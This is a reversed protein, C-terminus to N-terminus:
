MSVRPEKHGVVAFIRYQPGEHALQFEGPYERLLPEFCDPESPLWYNYDKVTVIVWDVHYKRIGEMLMQPNSIPPFWVVRHGSYHYVLDLKRAMVVESPSTHSHIWRAAGIDGYFSTKSMDFHLNDRGISLQGVLGAGLLIGVILTMVVQAASLSRGAVSLRQRSVFAWVNTFVAPQFVARGTVSVALTTLLVWFLCYVTSHRWAAIGLLPFLLTGLVAVRIPRHLLQQICTAGGRWLYLCALPVVPMVFRHEINWPWLLQMLMYGVFYWELLGGGTRWISGSVGVVVLFVTGVVVPSYWATKWGKHLLLRAFAEAYGLLNQEVRQPLDALSANGLEPYNGNKVTIQSIYSGPWGGIPWELSEHKGSWRMWAGLVVLGLLLAPLFSACRVRATQPERVGALALWLFLALLLAIAATRIMLALTLCLAFLLGLVLRSTVRHASDLKAALWLCLMSVLFYPLESFVLQTSFQFVWPSSGLLLCSVAAVGRGQARRLLNYNVILGSIFFVPMSRILVAYTCQFTVCILALILPLGPPFLTNLRFNFGYFRQTLISHALEVYTTDHVFDDAREYLTFQLAGFALIVSYILIDAKDIRYKM